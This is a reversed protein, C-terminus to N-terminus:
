ITNQTPIIELPNPRPVYVITLLSNEGSTIVVANKISGSM